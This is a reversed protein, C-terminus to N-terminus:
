IHEFWKCLIDKHLAKPLLGSRLPSESYSAVKAGPPWSSSTDEVLLPRPDAIRGDRIKPNNWLVTVVSSGRVPMAGHKFWGAKCLIISMGNGAHLVVAKGTNPDVM